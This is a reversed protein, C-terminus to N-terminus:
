VQKYLWFLVDCAAVIQLSGHIEPVTDLFPLFSLGQHFDDPNLSTGSLLRARTQFPGLISPSHCKSLVQLALTAERYLTKM